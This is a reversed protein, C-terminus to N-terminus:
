EYHLAEVPDMESARKAPIYGSIMGVIMAFILAQMFLIPSIEVPLSFGAATSAFGILLALGFGFLSGIVGGVMGIFGAEIIFMNRIKKNTAGIAKMVGIERTRELVAMFMTNMIGIGGVALSIAAIGVLVLQILGLVMDAGELMQEMSMVHFDKSGHDKELEYEIEEVVKKVDNQSKAIVMIEVPEEEGFVSKVIDKHMWAMGGIGSGGMMLGSEDLLGVIRFQKGEMELRSKVGLENTFTNKAFQEGIILSYRDNPDLMRGEILKMYGMKELHENQEPDFGIIFVGASEKRYFANSTTEYFPIVAEVNNIREIIEVDNESLTRSIATELFGGTGPEIIITNLGIQEFENLVANQLGEGVSILAVIAAVGIIVGALTLFSRLRQHRINRLAVTFTELDIM